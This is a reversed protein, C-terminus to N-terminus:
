PSASASNVLWSSCACVSSCSLGESQLPVQGPGRWGCIVPFWTASSPRRWCVLIVYTPDYAMSARRYMWSRLNSSRLSLLATGGSKPNTGAEAPLRMRAGVGALPRPM